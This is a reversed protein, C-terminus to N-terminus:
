VHGAEWRLRRFRREFAERGGEMVRCIEDRVTKEQLAGRQTVRCESQTFDLAHIMEADGNVVINPSHTVVIIQRRRKTQRIQSVILDYILHNDLDDEPQDLVIPEDGYALLFALMAAAKQGASAQTIPQFGQDDGRRYEIALGDEPFWALTRDITEPRQDQERKLFNCFHGGLEKAGLACREVVERIRKLRGEAAYQAPELDTAKTGRPEPLGKVLEAIMGTAPQTDTAETFIDAGFKDEGTGLVKRLSEELAKPERGYPQLRIRVYESSSLTEDLFRRRMEQLERRLKRLDDLAQVAQKDLSKQQAELSTLEAGIAELRHRDQVLRAYQSPDEVGQTKLAALLAQHKKEAGAVAVNWPELDPDSAFLRGATGLAESAGKVTVAAKSVAAHLREAAKTAGQDVADAADFTGEPIDPLVIEQALGAVQKTVGEVRLKQAAIERAQRTRRQYERLVAAHQSEEFKAIKRVVDELEGQVRDREGLRKASDRRKARLQLFKTEAADFRPQWEHTGIAEDIMALLADGRGDALAIVHGQSLIRVPFRTRVDQSSAAKWTGSAWEEVSPPAGDQRWSIRFARGEHHYEVLAVTGPQLAGDASRTKPVQLFREYIVLPDANGGLRKLDDERRLAARLFHVVSSKGTGRGGVLANLWPSFELEEPKQRGMFRASCIQISTIWDQPVKNRDDRADLGESRRVSFNKGDILALRLGEISPKGMKIWTYHSGPFKPGTEGSPHHADSGLVESFRSRRQEYIAPRQSQESWLEVALLKPHDLIPELTSGVIKFAGDAADVHALITVGERKEVEDIIQVVSAEAAPSSAGPSGGFHVAGLLMQIDAAGKAPDFLALVHTGGNATIEVGPFLALPRLEPHRQLELAALAEKLKDVWEGSNHDTIAVCDVKARMYALLWEEPTLKQLDVHKPGKGYDASAPTHTHFDFRWWRAGPFDSM